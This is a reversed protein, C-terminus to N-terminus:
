FPIDDDFDPETESDKRRNGTEGSRQRTVVPQRDTKANNDPKPDLMELERAVIETIYKTTGDQEYSRIELEGVIAVKSGKHLYEGMIEALKNWGVVRVWTTKEQKQGDKNWRKTVAMSFNTIATGTQTYKTEPDAGLNGILMVINLSM